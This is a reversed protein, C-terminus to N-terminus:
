RFQGGGCKLGFREANGSEVRGCPDSYRHHGLRGIPPGDPRGPALPLAACNLEGPTPAPDQILRFASLELGKFLIVIPSWYRNVSM